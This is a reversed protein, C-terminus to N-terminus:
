VRKNNSKLPILILFVSFLILGSIYVLYEHANPVAIYKISFVGMIGLLLENFFVSLMFLKLGNMGLNSHKFNSNTVIQNVLFTSVCMLLILHLYAIVINRFGFAFQSVAPINSGLQLLIKVGFALGVYLLVFRQLPTWAKKIQIWNLRIFQFLKVAGYTQMLTAIIVPVFFWIPLKAWLISLGYGILCGVFMLWFILRNEKEELKVGIEKLSYILLGICSFLFFGNYQFHLFFYSTALYIDQLVHKTLMMYSLAFVGLSSFMSFFLAGLFWSKSTDKISKSDKVFVYFFVFSVLIAVFSFASSLWSHGGSLFSFLLGYSAIFNALILSQYKKLNQEPKNKHLYEAMFIYICSAIWGYFAFHYHSEQIHKQSLFPFSFAIKYRMLVGLVAVIFLNFVSLKLGFALKNKM